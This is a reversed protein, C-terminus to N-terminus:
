LQGGKKPKRGFAFNKLAKLFEDKDDYWTSDIRFERHSDGFEFEGKKQTIDCFGLRGSNDAYMTRHENDLNLHSVFHFPVKKLENAKM